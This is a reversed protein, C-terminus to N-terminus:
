NQPQPAADSHHGGRGGFDPRQGKLTELQAKQEATLVNRVAIDTKIRAIELETTLAAKNTLIQRAQAEDFTGGDIMTKLQDDFTRIKDFNDKQASRAADQLSQIQQKQADTLNLKDLVQPPIGAGGRGGGPGDGDHRFGKEDKGGSFQGGKQNDTQGFIFTLSCGIVIAVLMPLFIKANSKM